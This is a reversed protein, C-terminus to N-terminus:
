RMIIGTSHQTLVKEQSQRLALPYLMELRLPARAIAPLDHTQASVIASLFSSLVVTSLLLLAVATAIKNKAIKM